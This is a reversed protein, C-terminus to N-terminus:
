ANKIIKIFEEAELSAGGVLVGSLNDTSTFNKVNLSDVSGGYLVKLNNKKSRISRAVVEANEPTDPTGSGIAFAPEYAVISVEEPMFTNENQVCFIPIVGKSWASQVKNKLMDDDEKFYQRRESHGIIVYNCYDVLQKANVEGTYAGEGFPSVDQAGLKVPLNNEKIYSSFTFLLQFPPCIIIEKQTLNQKSDRIIKFNELWENAESQTKYSKLNAVLFLKDM